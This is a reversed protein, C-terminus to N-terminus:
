WADRWRRLLAFRELASTPCAGFHRQLSAHISPSDLRLFPNIAKETAIRSPLTPQGRAQLAECHARYRPLEPNDPEVAEAFPLNRLTYEHAGCVRTPDPLAAFRQLAAYLEEASGEFLRGCGASFLADGCFLYGEGWYAIHGRTHGGVFIVQLSLPLGGPANIIEGGELAIDCRPLRERAPGYVPMRYRAYLESVGGTHDAHHHTILVATLALRQAELWAIVPAAEGPDVALARAGDHVIWVYNDQLAPIPLVSITM